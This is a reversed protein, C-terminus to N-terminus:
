NTVETLTVHFQLLGGAPTKSLLKQSVYVKDDKLIDITQDTTVPTPNTRDTSYVYRGGQLIWHDCLDYTIAANTTDTVSLYLYAPIATKGKIVIRPDKPIDLGPILVYENGTSETDKVITYSGNTQREVKSEVVTISTALSANFEVTGSQIAPITSKYKGVAVSTLALLLLTLLILLRLRTRTNMKKM